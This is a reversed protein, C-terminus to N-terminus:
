VIIWNAGNSVVDISQYQNNLIITTSGDITQSSTTAVTIVGTGSNKITYWKGTVSAATPLTATFTGSTCNVVQDTTLIAYTGTQATYTFTSASGMSEIKDRVANKSPAITTVGDWSTADYATDSVNDTTLLTKGEVSVVGASVRALTTDSAHGLEITTFQPATLSTLIATGGVTPMNTSEINTFWGKTVRNATAAISGTMTISGTGLTIDGTVNASGNFNQGWITRTTTLTAASGTTNQNLTPFDGAVAISLVGTTTTNKLIGTGLAGLFQAASLGTDATGQVIFKNAFAVDASGDVSNGALNRATTWKAASGTTNQNLTPFNTLNAASGDTALLTKTGTPLTYVGTDDAATFSMTKLATLTKGATVSLGTVTGANGTVSGSIANTVTIDTAWLKTLRAGTVGITQGVTQDTKVYGSLDQDGTNTGSTNGIVTLQADTVYNKDTSATVDATTLALITKVNAATLEEVVGAGATIRGLIRSTASVNQMKAYTVVGNDITMTTGGGGVTIDGYDGDSLGGAGGSANLTTDTISLNTGLTLHKYAGASDDWFLLRDANPDALGAIDALNQNFAQVNTGIAVGLNTRATAANALDSLNNAKVMLGSLDQDGTNTGSLNSLKTIDGATVFKNTTATDDIDDADLVVVGTQGNVSDVAGGGGIPAYLKDATARSLGGGFRSGGGQPLNKIASADLRYDGKLSELKEVIDLPKDTCEMPMTEMKAMMEQMMQSHDGHKSEMAMEIKDMKGDLEDMEVKMAGMKEDVAQMKADHEVMLAAMGDQMMMNVRDKMADMEYETNTKLTNALQKFQVKFNDFEASNKQDIQKVFDLVAKFSTVFEQKTISENVASMLQRLKELRDNNM